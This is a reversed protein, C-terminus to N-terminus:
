LDIPKLVKVQESGKDFKVIKREAMQEIIQRVKFRGIFTTKQLHDLTTSEKGKLEQAVKAEPMTIINERLLYRLAQYKAEQLNAANNAEESEAELKQLIDAFKDDISNLKENIETLKRDRDLLSRDLNRLEDELNELTQKAENVQQQLREQEIKAETIVKQQASSTSDLRGREEREATLEGELSSAERTMAEETARKEELVEHLQAAIQLVQDIYNSITSLENQTTTSLEEVVAQSKKLSGIISPIGTM